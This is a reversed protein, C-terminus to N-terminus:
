ELRMWQEMGNERALLYAKVQSKTTLGHDTPLVGIEQGAQPFARDYNIITNDLDLGIHHIMGGSESLM